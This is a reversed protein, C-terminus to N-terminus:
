NTTACMTTYLQFCISIHNFSLLNNVSILRQHEDIQLNIQNDTVLEKEDLKAKTKRAAFFLSLSLILACNPPWVSLINDIQVSIPFKM